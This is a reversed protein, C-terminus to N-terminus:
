RREEPLLRDQQHDVVQLVQQGGRRVEVSQQRSDGVERDQRRTALRKLQAPLLHDLDPGQRHRAGLVCCPRNGVQRRHGGDPEEHHARLGGVGGKLQRRGIGRRDGLQATAQLSQRQRHLQRGGADADQLGLGQQVPHVLAQGQEAPVRGVQRLAM